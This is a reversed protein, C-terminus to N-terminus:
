FTRILMEDGPWAVRTPQSGSAGSATLSSSLVESPDVSSPVPLGTAVLERSWRPQSAAEEPSELCPGLPQTLSVPGPAPFTSSSGNSQWAGEMRWVSFAYSLGARSSSSALSSSSSSSSSFSSSSSSSTSSSSSSS